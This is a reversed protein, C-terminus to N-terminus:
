PKKRKESKAAQVARRGFQLETALEGQTYEPFVSIGHQGAFRMFDALPMGLMKAATGTSVKESRYLRLVTQEHVFAEATNLYEKELKKGRAEKPVNLRLSKPM